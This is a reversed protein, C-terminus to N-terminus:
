FGGGQPFPYLTNEFPWLGLFRQDRQLFLNKNPSIEGGFLFYIRLARLPEATLIRNQVLMLYIGILFGCPPSSFIEENSDKRGLTEAQSITKITFTM